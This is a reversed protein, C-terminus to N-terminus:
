RYAALVRNKFWIYQTEDSTVWAPRNWRLISVHIDGHAVKQADAALQFGPERQVNPYEDRSRMTSPNPGTSTNRDNGMEIKITNMIPHDGGFLTELLEWYKKPQQAKYDLLLSSTSNGTLIGFGKFTLGNRNKAAADVDSGKINVLQAVPDVNQADVAHALPASQALASM